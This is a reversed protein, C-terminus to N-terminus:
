HRATIIDTIIIIEYLYIENVITNLGVDILPYFPHPRKQGWMKRRHLCDMWNVPIM